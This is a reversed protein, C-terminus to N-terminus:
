FYYILRHVRDPARVKSSQEFNGSQFHADAIYFYICAQESESFMHSLKHEELNLEVFVLLDDFLDYEYLSKVADFLDLQM